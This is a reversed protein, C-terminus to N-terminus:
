RTSLGHSRLAHELQAYIVGVGITFVCMVVFGAFLYSRVGRRSRITMYVPYGIVFLFAVLLGWHAPGNARPRGRADTDETGGIGIKAADLAVFVGCGIITAGVVISFVQMPNSRLVDIVRLDQIWYMLGGLSVIPLAIAAIIWGDDSAGRATSPREASVAAVSTPTGSLTGATPPPLPPHATVRLAPVVSESIPPTIQPLAPPEADVDLLIASLSEVEIARIWSPMGKVWVLDERAVCGAQCRSVLEDETMPGHREGGRAVFWRASANHPLAESKMPPLAMSEESPTDSPETNISPGSKPECAQAVERILSWPGRESTAFLSAESVKGLKWGTIVKQPSFPGHISEDPLKVWWREPIEM